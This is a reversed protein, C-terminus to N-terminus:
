ASTNLVKFKEERTLHRYVPKTEKKRPASSVYTSDANTKYSGRQVSTVPIPTVVVTSSIPSTINTVKHAKEMKNLKRFNRLKYSIFSVLVLIGFTLGVILVVSSLIPSLEM